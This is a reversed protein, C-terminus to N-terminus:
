NSLSDTRITKKKFTLFCGTPNKKETSSRIESLFQELNIALLFIHYTVLVCSDPATVHARRGDLSTQLWNCLTCGLKKNSSTPLSPRQYWKGRVIQFFIKFNVM